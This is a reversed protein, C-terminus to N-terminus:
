HSTYYRAFYYCVRVARVLNLLMVLVVQSTSPNTTKLSFVHASNAAKIPAIVIQNLPHSLLDNVTAWVHTPHITIIMHGKAVPSKGNNIETFM